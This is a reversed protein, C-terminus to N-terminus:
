SAADLTNGARIKRGLSTAQKKKNEVDHFSERSDRGGQRGKCKKTEERWKKGRIEFFGVRLFPTERKETATRIRSIGGGGPHVLHYNLLDRPEKKKKPTPKRRKRLHKKKGPVVKEEL